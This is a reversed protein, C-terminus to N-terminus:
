RSTVGAAKLASSVLTQWGTGTTFIVCLQFFIPRTADFSEKYVAPFAMIAIIISGLIWGWAGKLDWQGNTMYRQFYPQVVVGALLALYQPFWHLKLDDTKAVARSGGPRYQSVLDFYGIIKNIM